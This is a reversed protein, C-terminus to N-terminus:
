TGRLSNRTAMVAAAGGFAALAIGIGLISGAIVDLLWHVQLYTRSWAMTAIMLAAVTWWVRRRRGNHTFLVVIAVSTAAAFAAHGSPFSAGAPHVLGNAPRPRDVLAKTLSSVLPAAGEIVVFVVFARWRKALLLAIGPLAILTARIVGRGLANFVKALHTLFPSQIELMWENWQREVPLPHQPVLLATVAFTLLLALALALLPVPLAGLELRDVM